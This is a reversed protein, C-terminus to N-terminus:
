FLTPLIRQTLIEFPQDTLQSGYNSGTFIVTLNEEPFLFIFNGGNGSAFFAEQTGDRVPFERKWWLLGYGNEWRTYLTTMSQKSLEVWETSIIQQNNWIGNNLYLQGFKAADRPRLRLGGGGTADGNPSRRWKVNEIGLPDFLYQKAFIDLKMEKRNAIIDGLLIVGGTCYRSTQNGPNIDMPLNLIFKIWNKTKYMKEEQGKSNQDWDNCALGSNMNLLHLVKIVNKREDPNKYNDLNVLEALTDETSLAGQEIAIGTLASTISKSTSRLDHLTDRGYGNFYAEAVLRGNKALIISDVGPYTGNRIVELEALLMQADIGEADPTSTTWGDGTNEPSVSISPPLGPNEDREPANNENNDKCGVLFVFVLILWLYFFCSTLKNTLKHFKM